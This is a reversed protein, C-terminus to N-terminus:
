AGRLAAQPRGGMGHRTEGRGHEGMESWMAGHPRGGSWCNTWAFDQRTGQGGCCRLWGSKISGGRMWDAQEYFRSCKGPTDSAIPHSAVEISQDGTGVMMAKAAIPQTNKMSADWMDVMVEGTDPNTVVEGKAAGNQVPVMDGGNPGRATSATKQDSCSTQMALALALPIVMTSFMLMKM